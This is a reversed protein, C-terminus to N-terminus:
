LSNAGGEKRELDEIILFLPGKRPDGDKFVPPLQASQVLSDDLAERLAEDSVAQYGMPHKNVDVGWCPIGGIGGSSFRQRHKGPIWYENKSLQDRLDNRKLPLTLRAKALYIELATITADPDIFLRYERWFNQSTGPAAGINVCLVKFCQKPVGGHKYATILHEWFVNIFLDSRVDAAAEQAHAHMWTRFEGLEEGTHSELMGMMALFSGYAVGNTLMDRKSVNRVEWDALATVVRRSFEKRHEM